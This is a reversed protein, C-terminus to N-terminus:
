GNFMGRNPTLMTAQPIDRGTNKKLMTPDDKLMGVNRPLDVKDTSIRGRLVSAKTPQQIKPM